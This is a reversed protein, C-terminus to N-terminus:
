AASAVDDTSWDDVVLIEMGTLDNEFLAALCLKLHEAMNHVPIIVSTPNM